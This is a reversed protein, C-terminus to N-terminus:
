KQDAAEICIKIKSLSPFGDSVRISDPHAVSVHNPAVRVFDGLKKHQEYMTISFEHKRDWWATLM